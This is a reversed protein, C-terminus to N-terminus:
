FQLSLRAFTNKHSNPSFKLLLKKVSYRRHSSRHKTFISIGSLLLRGSTNQLFPTRLFRAFNVPFCRHWLRLGAVKNLFLSQCLHKGTFKACNRLVDKKVSCRLHSSRDNLILEVAKVSFFYIKSYFM